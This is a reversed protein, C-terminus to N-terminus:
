KGINYNVFVGTNVISGPSINSYSSVIKFGYHFKQMIGFVLQVGLDLGAGQNEKLVIDESFHLYSFGVISEFKFNDYNGFAYSVHIGFKGLDYNKDADKPDMTAQAASIGISIDPDIRYNIQGEYNIGNDEGIFQQNLILSGSFESQSSSTFPVLLLIYLAIYFKISNM